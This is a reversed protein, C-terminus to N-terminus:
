NILHNFWWKWFLNMLVGESELRLLQACSIKLSQKLKGVHWMGHAVHWTNCTVHLMSCKKLILFPFIDQSLGNSFLAYIIWFDTPWYLEIIFLYKEEIVTTEWCNLSNQVDPYLLVCVFHYLELDWGEKQFSLKFINVKNWNGTFYILISVWWMGIYDM